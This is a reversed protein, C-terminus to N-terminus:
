RHMNAKLTNSKNEKLVLGLSQSPLVDWFYKTDCSVYFRLETLWVWFWRIKCVNICAATSLIEVQLAHPVTERRHSLKKYLKQRSLKKWIKRIIYSPVVTESAIGPLMRLLSWKRINMFRKLSYRFDRSRTWCTTWSVGGDNKFSQWVLTQM